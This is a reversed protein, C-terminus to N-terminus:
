PAIRIRSARDSTTAATVAEEVPHLAPVLGASEEAAIGIFGATATLGATAVSIRGRSGSSGAIQTFRLSADLLRTRPVM